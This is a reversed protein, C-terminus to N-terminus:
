KRAVLIRDKGQMDKEIYIESYMMHKAQTYIEGSFFENMEVLIYGGPRLAKEGITLLQLYVGVVDDEPAYLAYYPEWTRVSTDMKSTERSSIYPPNSIILDWKPELMHPGPKFFNNLVFQVSAGLASANTKAVDLAGTSIDTAIVQAFPCLLSLSIAICGSGTGVDWIRYPDNESRAQLLKKATYVLEETEPRPILVEENVVFKWHYFYAIGTVYQVPKGSQLDLVGRKLMIAEERTLIRNSEAANKVNILDDFLLDLVSHLEGESYQPRLITVMDAHSKKAVVGEWDHDHLGTM